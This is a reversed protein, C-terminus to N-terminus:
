QMEGADDGTGPEQGGRGTKRRRREGGLIGAQGVGAGGIWGAAVRRRDSGDVAEVGVVRFDDM